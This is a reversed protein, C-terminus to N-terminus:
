RFAAIRRRIRTSLALWEDPRLYVVYFCLTITTFTGVNMFVGLIGHTILGIGLFVIRADFREARARLRDGFWGNQAAIWLLVFAFLREWWLAIFTSARLPLQAWGLWALHEWRAWTTIQLSRFVGDFPPHWGAGGKAYGTATYLMALQAVALYRPFAYVQADSTWSGHRLRCDVSLTATTNGLVLFFLANTLLRDYGGGIDLPIAHWALVVQLLALHTLRGGLGVLSAASLGLMASWLAWTTTTTHGIVDLLLSPFRDAPAMGGESIPIYLPDIVGAAVLSLADLLVVMAVAIRFLALTRGSEEASWVETWWTWPRTM